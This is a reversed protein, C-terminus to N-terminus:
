TTTTAGSDSKASTPAACHIVRAAMRSTVTASVAQTASRPACRNARGSRCSAESLSRMPRSSRSRGTCTALRQCSTASVAVAWSDIRRPRSRAVSPRSAATSRRVCCSVTATSAAPSAERAFAENRALMLWSIRVGIFAM